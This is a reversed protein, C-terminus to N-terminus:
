IRELRLTNVQRSHELSITIRLYTEISTGLFIPMKSM